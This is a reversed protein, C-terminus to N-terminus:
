TELLTKIETIINRSEGEQRLEIFKDALAMNGMNLLLGKIAHMSLNIAKIDEPEEELLKQLKGFEKVLDRKGSELLKVVQDDSFGFEGFRKRAIEVTEDILKEM